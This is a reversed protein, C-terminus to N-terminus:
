ADFFDLTLEVTKMQKRRKGIIPSEPRILYIPGPELLYIPCNFVLDKDGLVLKPEIAQRFEMKYKIAPKLIIFTIM